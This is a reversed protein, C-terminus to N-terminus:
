VARYLEGINTRAFIVIYEAKCATVRLMIIGYPYINCISTKKQSTISLFQNPSSHTKLSAGSKM